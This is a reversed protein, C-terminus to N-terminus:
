LASFKECLLILMSGAALDSTKGQKDLLSLTFKARVGAAGKHFYLFVSVHAAKGEMKKCGDPYMHINWDCDGASFTTSRVFKDIGLGDLLSFDPVEFIHTATVKETVCRSTSSTSKNAM